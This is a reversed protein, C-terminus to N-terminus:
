LFPQTTTTTGGGGGGGGGGTTTTTSPTSCVTITVTQPFPPQLVTGASPDQSQVTGPTGGTLTCDVYTVSSNLGSTTMMSGTEFRM